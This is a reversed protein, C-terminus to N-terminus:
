LEICKSEKQNDTFRDPMKKIKGLNLIGLLLIRHDVSRPITPIFSLTQHSYKPRDTETHGSEALPLNNLKQKAQDRQGVKTPKQWNEDNTKNRCRCDYFRVSDTM